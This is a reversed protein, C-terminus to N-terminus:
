RGKEFLLERLAARAVDRSFHREINVRGGASLKEWLARDEYVRQVAAAFAEADEAVLVDEGDSLHMGEVSAPTAVVPLGYSMALNVKGKVGAGYRLPAISVRCGSFYPAVDPVHGLIVVDDAGLAKIVAPVQSGIVYTRVGPLRQRVIPLVERAYWLMADVNPPHEFGGIFVLGARAEWPAVTPSLEHVNSVLRVDAAPALERLVAQEAHSVVLTVNAKAILALEEDRRARASAAAMRSGGLAALREERLFHLDVTDFVVRARPAFRRVSDVHRAAVYHRSLVILDFERGRHTLLEPISRVYPHFLVEVGRRQLARVYPEDYELNDAVFTVKCGLSTALELLSQMRLSGSDQDPRPLRADVVLM